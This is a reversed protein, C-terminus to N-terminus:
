HTADIKRLTRTAGNAPSRTVIGFSKVIGGHDPQIASSCRQVDRKVVFSKLAPAWRPVKAKTHCDLTPRGPVYRGPIPPAQATRARAALLGAAPAVPAQM